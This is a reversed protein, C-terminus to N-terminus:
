VMWKSYIEGVIRIMNWEDIGEVDMGNYYWEFMLDEYEIM